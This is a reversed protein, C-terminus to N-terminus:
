GALAGRFLGLFEEDSIAAADDPRLQITGTSTKLKPHREVFGGDDDKRWGYVSIGHKWAALLVRRGGAKYTPMKYSMVVTVDPRARDFLPRYGAPIADIYGRVDDDVPIETM